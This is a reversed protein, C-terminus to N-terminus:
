CLGPNHLEFRKWPFRSLRPSPSASHSSASFFCIILKPTCTALHSKAFCTRLAAVPKIQKFVFSVLLNISLRDADRKNAKAKSRRSGAFRVLQRTLFYITLDISPRNRMVLQSEYRDAIRLLGITDASFVRKLKEMDVNFVSQRSARLHSVSQAFLNQFTLM